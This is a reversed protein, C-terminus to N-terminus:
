CKTNLSEKRNNEIKADTRIAIWLTQLLYMLISTKYSTINNYINYKRKMKCFVNLLTSVNEFPARISIGVSM